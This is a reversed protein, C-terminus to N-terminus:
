ANTLMEYRNSQKGYSRKVDLTLRIIAVLDIMDIFDNCVM